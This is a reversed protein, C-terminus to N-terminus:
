RVCGRGPTNTGDQLDDLDASDLIGDPGLVSDMAAIVDRVRTPLDVHFLHGRCQCDSAGFGAAGIGLEPLVELRAAWECELERAARRVLAARPVAARRLYDLHWRPSEAVQLHHRLRARLGGPGQASGVYAYIGAEFELWGLRGVCLERTTQMELLLVYVGPVALGLTCTVSRAKGSERVERSGTM